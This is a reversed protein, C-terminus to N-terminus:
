DDMVRIRVLFNAGLWEQPNLERRNGNTPWPDRVIAAMIQERGYIDRVWQIGTLIMAHGLAGIILPMDQKLDQAATLANASYVDGTVSFANGDGDVWSRNLDAIIQQPQAPLNVIEGWTQQVIDQQSIDHGYYGFVGSICAAWCWESSQQVAVPAISSELGVMCEQIGPPVIPSCAMGSWAFTPISMLPVSLFSNLFWRRNMSVGIKNFVESRIKLKSSLLCEVFNIEVRLSSPSAPDDLM